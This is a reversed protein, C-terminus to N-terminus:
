ISADTVEEPRCGLIIINVGVKTVLLIHNVYQHRYFYLIRAHHVKEDLFAKIRSETLEEDDESYSPQDVEMSMKTEKEGNRPSEDFNPNLANSM